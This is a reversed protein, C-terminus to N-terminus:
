YNIRKKSWLHTHLAPLDRKLRIQEAVEVEVVASYHAYLVAAALLM